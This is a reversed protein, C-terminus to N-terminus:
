NVDEAQKNGHWPERMKLHAKTPFNSKKHGEERIVTSPKSGVGGEGREKLVCDSVGYTVRGLMVTIFGSLM